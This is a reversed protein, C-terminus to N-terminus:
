IHLLIVVLVFLIFTGLMFCFIFFDQSEKLKVIRDQLYNRIAGKDDSIENLLDIAWKGLHAVFIMYIPALALGILIIAFINKPM